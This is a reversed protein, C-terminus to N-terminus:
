APVPDLVPKARQVGADLARIALWEPETGAAGLYRVGDFADAARSFEAGFDPFARSSEAGFTHATTGPLSTVIVRDALSRAIARFGEEIALAFDGDAAAREAARRLADSDREDEAGFLAGTAASRRNLRPLGFVLFGIVVAAVLLIVLVLIILSSGGPAGGTHAFLSNFWKEVNQVLLDIANPRAAAYQSKSLEHTVQDRANQAGPTLPPTGPSVSSFHLLTM